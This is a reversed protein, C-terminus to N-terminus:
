SVESNLAQGNAFGNAGPSATSPASTCLGKLTSIPEDTTVTRSWARLERYAHLSFITEGPSEICYRDQFCFENLVSFFLLSDDEQTSTICTFDPSGVLPPLVWIRFDITLQSQLSVKDPQDIGASESM